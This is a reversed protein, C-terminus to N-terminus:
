RQNELDRKLTEAEAALKWSRICNLKPPHPNFHDIEIEENELYLVLSLTIHGQALDCCLNAVASSQFKEELHGM